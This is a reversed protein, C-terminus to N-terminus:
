NRRVPPGVDATRIAAPGGNVAIRQGTDRLRGEEFRFVSINRDAMNQVLITRGDRSFAVGQAWDGVPARAVERLRGNEIRLMVLQARGRLPDGQPRASGNHITVAVHRNDPSAQIGEPTAGVTATAVTLFPERQLNILSVTDADGSGRGINAAVAWRGDPTLGMGYPRIGATIDRNTKTVTEGEINLVSVFSAAADDRTVLARRGDPTFQVHAPSSTANGITVTSLPTLSGAALRFVSVTGANRNAVLVLTGARNVSVGSPGAGAEVTQVVRPPSARLDVVQVRNDPVTRAPNAPDIREASTLIAFREDPTVAVSTPPGVVSHSLAVEGLVRPARGSLDIITATDAPADQVVRNQGNELRRKNDNGSVAIQAAAPLSLALALAIAGGGLLRPSM